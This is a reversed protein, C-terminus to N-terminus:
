YSAFYDLILKATQTNRNRGERCLAVGGACAAHPARGLVARGARSGAHQQLAPAEWRTGLPEEAAAM